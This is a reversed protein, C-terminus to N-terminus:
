KLDQYKSRVISWDLSYEYSSNNLKLTDKLFLFYDKNIEEINKNLNLKRIYSCILDMNLSSTYALIDFHKKEKFSFFVNDELVSNNTVPNFLIDPRLKFCKRYRQLLKNEVEKKLQNASWMSYYMHYLGLSRKDSSNHNLNQRDIKLSILNYKSTLGKIIPPIELLETYNPENLDFCDWTHLYIDLKGFKSITKLTVPMCKLFSRLHGYCIVAIKDNDISKPLTTNNVLNVVNVSRIDM